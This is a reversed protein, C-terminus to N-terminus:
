PTPETRRAANTAAHGEDEQRDSDGEAGDMPAAEHGADGETGQRDFNINARKTSPLMLVGGCLLLVAGLGISWGITLGRKALTPKSM